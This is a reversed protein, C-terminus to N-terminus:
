ARDMMLNKYVDSVPKRLSKVEPERAYFLRCLFLDNVKNELGLLQLYEGRLASLEQRLYDSTSVDDRELRAFMFTAPSVPQYSVGQNNLYLWIRNVWKGGEVMAKASHDDCHLLALASIDKMSDTSMKILANGMDWERLQAIANGDQILKFGVKDAESLEITRLDVGNRTQEAQEKTWRAEHIFDRHGWPDLIRQREIRGIIQSLKEMREQDEVWTMKFGSNDLAEGIELKFRDELPKYQEARYRNTMRNALRDGYIQFPAPESEQNHFSYVAVLREGFDKLQYLRKAQFGLARARQELNDMAGGFGIYSGRHRYDLFSTSFHQDHFLALMNDKWIWKWPQTNGGTAALCANQVIDNVQQDDLALAGKEPVLAKSDLMAECEKFSLEDPAERKSSFDTELKQIFHKDLDLYYRGSDVSQGLLIRRAVVTSLAGGLVVSSALQPWTTLSEEVELLSAKLRSSINQAGVMDMVLALREKATWQDVSEARDETVMGHMLEREPELDFREIDMMGRDSTDMIVPIGAKRAALRSKIKIDLADCEEILLDLKDEGSGIFEDLNEETIGDPYVEIKLFPDIEAIERAVATSKPLELNALGTRIRNLNSLELYDFDAIRLTGYVREMSLTLAVSQGVSLGILGIKKSQLIAQEEPHIKYQNRSTRLRVFDKEPLLHILNHNWPYYVWTGFYNPDNERLWNQWYEALQKKSPKDRPHDIKYLELVQSEISNYVNIQKNNSSIFIELERVDDEKAMDYLVPKFEIKNEIFINSLSNTLDLRNTNEM